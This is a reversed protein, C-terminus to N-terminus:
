TIRAYTVLQNSDYYEKYTQVHLAQVDESESEVAKIDANINKQIFTKLIDDSWYDRKDTSIIKFDLPSM